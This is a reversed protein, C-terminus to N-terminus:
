KHYRRSRLLNHYQRLYIERAEELFEIRKSLTRIENTCWEVMKAAEKQERRIVLNSFWSRVNFFGM